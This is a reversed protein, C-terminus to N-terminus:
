LTTRCPDYHQPRRFIQNTSAPAFSAGYGKREITYPTGKLVYQEGFQLDRTNDSLCTYGRPYRPGLSTSSSTMNGISLRSSWSTRLLRSSIVHPRRSGSTGAAQRLESATRATDSVAPLRRRPESARLIQREPGLSPLRSDAMDLEGPDM